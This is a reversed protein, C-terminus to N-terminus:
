ESANYQPTQTVCALNEPQQELGNASNCDHTEGVQCKRRKDVIALGRALPPTHPTRAPVRLPQSFPSM